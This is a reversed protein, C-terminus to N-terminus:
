DFHLKLKIQGLKKDESYQLIFEIARLVDLAPCITSKSCEFNKSRTRTCLYSCTGLFPYKEKNYTFQM